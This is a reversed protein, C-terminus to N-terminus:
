SVEKSSGYTYMSTFFNSYVIWSQNRQYFSNIFQFTYPGVIEDDGDVIVM